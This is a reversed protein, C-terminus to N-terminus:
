VVSAFTPNPEAEIEALRARNAALMTQVAPLVHEPQIQSFAPLTLGRLLPNPQDM